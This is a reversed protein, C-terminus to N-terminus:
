WKKISYLMLEKGISGGIGALAFIIYESGTALSGLFGFSIGFVAGIILNVIIRITFDIM